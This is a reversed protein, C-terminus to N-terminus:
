GRDERDLLDATTVGAPLALRRRPRRYPMRPPRVAGTSVLTDLDSGLSDGTRVLALYRDVATRIVDQQSRGSRRAEARLAAEAEPRLRLNTAM